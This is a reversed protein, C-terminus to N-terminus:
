SYRDKINVLGRACLDAYAEKFANIGGWDDCEIVVIRRSTVKGPLNKINLLLSNVIHLAEM